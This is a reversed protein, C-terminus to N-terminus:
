SFDRGLSSTCRHLGSMIGQVLVDGTHVFRWPHNSRRITMHDLFRLFQDNNNTALYHANMCLKHVFQYSIRYPPASLSPTNSRPSTASSSSILTERLSYLLSVPLLRALAVQDARQPPSTPVPPCWRAGRARAHSHDSAM